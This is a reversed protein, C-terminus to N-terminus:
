PSELAAGLTNASREALLEGVLTRPRRYNDQHHAQLRAVQDNSPMKGKWCTM